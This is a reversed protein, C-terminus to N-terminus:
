SAPAFKHQWQTTTGNPWLRDRLRKHFAVVNPQARVIDVCDQVSPPLQKDAPYRSLIQVADVASIGTWSMHTGYSLAIAVVSRWACDTTEDLAVSARAYSVVHWSM